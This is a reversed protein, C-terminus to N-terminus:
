TRRSGGDYQVSRQIGEPIKGDTRVFQCRISLYLMLKMSTLVLANQGRNSGCLIFGTEHKSATADQPEVGFAHFELDLVSVRNLDARVQALINGRSSGSLPLPFHISKILTAPAEFPGAAESFGLELPLACAM